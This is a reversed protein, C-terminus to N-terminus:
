LRSCSVQFFQIGSSQLANRESSVPFELKLYARYLDSHEILLNSRDLPWNKQFQKVSSLKKFAGVQYCYETRAINKPKSTDISSEGDTKRPGKITIHYGSESPKNWQPVQTSSKPNHMPVARNSPPTVMPALQRRTPQISTQRFSPKSNNLASGAFRYNIGLSVKSFDGFISDDWAYEYGATLALQNDLGYLIKIGAFPLSDGRNLITNYNGSSLSTVKSLSLMSGVELGFSLKHYPTFYYAASLDLTDFDMLFSKGATSVQMRGFDSYSAGVELQHHQQKILATKLGLQYYANAESLSTLGTNITAEVDGYSSSSYFVLVLLSTRLLM